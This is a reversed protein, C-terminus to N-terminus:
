SYSAVAADSTTWLRLTLYTQQNLPVQTPIADVTLLVLTAEWPLVFIARSTRDEPIRAYSDVM